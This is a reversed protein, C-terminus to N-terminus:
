GKEWPKISDMFWASNSSPKVWPRPYMNTYSVMISENNFYKIYKLSIYYCVSQLFFNLIIIYIIHTGQKTYIDRLM